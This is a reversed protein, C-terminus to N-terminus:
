RLSFSVHPLYDDMIVYELICAGCDIRNELSLKLVFKDAYVSISGATRQIRLIKELISFVMGFNLHNRTM